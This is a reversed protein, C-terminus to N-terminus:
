SGGSKGRVLAVAALLTVALLFAWLGGAVLNSPFGLDVLLLAIGAVALVVLFTLVMLASGLIRFTKM